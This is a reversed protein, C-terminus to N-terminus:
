TDEGNNSDKKNEKIEGAIAIYASGDEFDDINFRGLKTRAVKLLAMCMAVQSPSIPIDLYASWLKAINTHNHLKDGHDIARDRSVLNSARLLIESAYHKM